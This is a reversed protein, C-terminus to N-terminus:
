GAGAAGAGSFALIVRDEVARYGLRQYLANSTPNALDTFLVVHSAGADLAAQSVATTVGGAYGRRRLEPPTYVPAIRVTGAVPRTVGAMSVAAGDHEWLSLGGYSLRDDVTRAVNVSMAGAEDSFAALWSELVDRDGSSAVRASGAPGPAPPELRALRFLRDRRHERTSGGALGTWAAAFAAADDEAANVGPLQAGRAALAEALRQASGEPLRTVLLPFPPTQVIAAAIQGGALTLWGFLPAAGGYASAGRARLTEAVTLHITHQVPRSRLFGGAAAAFADLDETITWDM